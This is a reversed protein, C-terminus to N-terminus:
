SSTPFSPSVNRSITNGADYRENPSAWRRTRASTPPKSTSGSFCRAISPRIRPAAHSATAMVTHIEHIPRRSVCPSRDRGGRAGTVPAAGQGSTEDHAGEVVHEVPHRERRLLHLLRIEDVGRVQEA